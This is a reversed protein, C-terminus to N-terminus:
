VLSDTAEVGERMEDAVVHSYVRSTIASNAHGLWRSVKEIREGNRLWTTAATHRFEHCGVEWPAFDEAKGGAELFEVARRESARREAKLLAHAFTDPKWVRGGNLSQTADVAPFVFGEDAWFVGAALRRTNQDKRHEKLLAVAKPSLPITRRSRATKPEKRTVKGPIQELAYRVHLVPAPRGKDDTADVDIETWKLALLEGRRLATLAALTCPAHVPTGELDHLLAKCTDPELGREGEPKFADIRPPRAVQCPNSAILHDAVCANKLTMSLVRHVNTVTVRSLGSDLLEAYFGSVVTATVDALRYHGIRPVIYRSTVHRYGHLTRATIHHRRSDLFALAYDGLTVGPGMPAGKDREGLLDRAVREAARLGKVRRSTKPIRGDTGKHGYVVVDYTNPRDKVPTISM